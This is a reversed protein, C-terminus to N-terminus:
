SRQFQGAYHDLESATLVLVASEGHASALWTFPVAPWTCELAAAASGVEVVLTGHDTLYQRAKSLLRRVIDLGDGGAAFAQAPEHQYEAPLDAMLQDSVYPPNCVILDYLRDELRDFLDSHVLRVRDHVEHRAVNIM